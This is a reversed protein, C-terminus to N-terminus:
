GYGVVTGAPIGTEYWIGLKESGVYIGMRERLRISDPIYKGPRKLDPALFVEPSGGAISVNFDPDLGHAMLAALSDNIGRESANRAENERFCLSCLQAHCFNPAPPITCFHDLCHMCAEPFHTSDYGEFGARAGSRLNELISEKANMGTGYARQAAIAKSFDYAQAQVISLLALILMLCLFALVFSLYGKM